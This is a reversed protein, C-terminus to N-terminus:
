KNRGWCKFQHHNRIIAIVATHKPYSHRATIDPPVAHLFAYSWSLLMMHPGSLCKRNSPSATLARQGGRSSPAEKLAGRWSKGPIARGGGGRSGTKNSPLAWHVVATICVGAWCQTEKTIMSISALGVRSRELARAAKNDPTKPFSPATGCLQQGGHPCLMCMFVFCCLLGCYGETEDGCVRYPRVVDSFIVLLVPQCQCSRADQKTHYPM